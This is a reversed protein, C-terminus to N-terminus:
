VMLRVPFNMQGSIRSLYVTLLLRLLIQLDNLNIGRMPARRGQKLPAEM